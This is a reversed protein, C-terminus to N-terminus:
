SIDAVWHVDLPSQCFAEVVALALLMVLVVEVSRSGGRGGGLDNIQETEDGCAGGM